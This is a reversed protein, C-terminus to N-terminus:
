HITAPNASVSVIRGDADRNIVFQYAPAKKDEPKLAAIREMMQALLAEVGSLDPAVPAQEEKPMDRRRLRVKAM